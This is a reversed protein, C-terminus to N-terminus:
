NFTTAIRAFDKSRYIHLLKDKLNGAPVFGWYRSDNSDNRNDGMVFYHGRRVVFERTNDFSGNDGISERVVYRQM